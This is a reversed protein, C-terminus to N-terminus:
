DVKVEFQYKYPKALVFYGIRNVYHFGSAYYLNPITVIEKTEVGLSNFYTEEREEVEDGELITIVCNKKSMKFVYDLEEGYTEYMCGDFPANKNIHNKQLNFKTYFKEETLNQLKITGM